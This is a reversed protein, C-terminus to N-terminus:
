AVRKAYNVLDIHATLGPLTRAVNQTQLADGQDETTVWSVIDLDTLYQVTRWWDIYARCTTVFDKENHIKGTGIAVGHIEKVGLELLDSNAKELQGQYGKIQPFWCDWAVGDVLTGWREYSDRVAKVITSPAFMPAADCWVAAGGRSQIERTANSINAILTDYPQPTMGPIRVSGVIGGITLPDDYVIGLNGGGQARVFEQARGIGERCEGGSPSWSSVVVDMGARQPIGRRNLFEFAGLEALAEASVYPPPMRQYSQTVHIAQWEWTLDPISWIHEYAEPHTFATLTDLVDANLCITPKM